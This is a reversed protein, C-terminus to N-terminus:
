ARDGTGGDQASKSRCSVGTDPIRQGTKEVQCRYQARTAEDMEQYVGSPDRRLLQETRDVRELLQTLDLESLTKLSVFANGMYTHISETKEPEACLDDIAWILAARLLDPILGIEARDLIRAKQVGMFFAQCREEDFRNRSARMYARCLEEMLPVGDCARLRRCHALQGSVLTGERQALYGNDLVWEAWVPPIGNGYQKQLEQRTLFIRKVAGSLARASEKGRIIGNVRLSRGVNEGFTEMNENEIYLGREEYTM